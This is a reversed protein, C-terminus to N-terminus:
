KKTSSAAKAAPDTSGSGAGSADPAIYKSWTQSRREASRPDEEQPRQLDRGNAVMGAINRQTACGWDPHPIRERERGVDRPWHGCEPPVAIPRIYSLKLMNSGGRGRAHSGRHVKSSSVDAQRVAARVDELPAGYGSWSQGPVSVTLHGTAEAKYRVIFRYLDAYQNQSLGHGGPPIEIALEEIRSQFTIPHATEASSLVLARENEYRERRELSECGAIILGLGAISAVAIVSTPATRLHTQKNTM